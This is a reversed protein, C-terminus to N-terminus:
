PRAFVFISKLLDVIVERGLSTTNKVLKDRTVSYAKAQKFRRLITFPRAGPKSQIHGFAERLLEIIEQQSSGALNIVLYKGSDIQEFFLFCPIERYKFNEGLLRAIPYVWKAHEAYQFPQDLFKARQLDRFYIFCCSEGSVEDLENRQNEVLAVVDLDTNTAMAICYLPYNHKKSFRDWWDTLESLNEFVREERDYYHAEGPLGPLLTM